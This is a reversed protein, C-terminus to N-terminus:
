KKERKFTLLVNLTGNLSEFKTPRDAGGGRPFCLLLKDGEIKYIGQILVNNATVWTMDIRPPDAKADLVYTVEETPYQIRGDAVTAVIGHWKAIEMGGFVYSEIVWSGDLKAPGTKEAKPAPAGVALAL